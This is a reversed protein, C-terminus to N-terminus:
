EQSTRLQNEGSNKVIHQHPTEKPTPDENLKKYHDTDLMKIKINYDQGDMVVTAKGNNTRLIILNQNRRIDQLTEERGQHNLKRSSVAPKIDYKKQKKAQCDESLENWEDM